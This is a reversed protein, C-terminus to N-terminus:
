KVLKAPTRSKRRPESRERLAGMKALIDVIPADEPLIIKTNEALAEALTELKKLEVANGVFYKNAAENVQKIAEAQAKAEIVVAQASGEAVKIAARKEGDAKTETATAFDMAAIKENEAKMVRNMTDQVDQPPEIEQLETRVIQIGWSATQPSLARELTVNLDDRQSNVEKFSKQGIIARLTTRALAVIQTYYNNVSYISKKVSEEDEKVKFYVQADVQANLNDKTIIQQPKANVMQETINIRVLKDVFPVLFRLGPNMFSHYKGFREKLGRETPRVIRISSYVAFAVFAAVIGPVILEFM